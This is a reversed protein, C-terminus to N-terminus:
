INGMSSHTNQYKTLIARVPSAEAGKLKLPLAILNYSGPKVDSLVLGELLAMKHKYVSHHCALKKDEALDVSPTDIGVLIVGKESLMSILECSLANFDSSWKFPNFSNTKFLVRKHQIEVDRIDEPMIRMAKKLNVEVLQCSGLYYDLSVEDITKGEPHYHFPADAHAGLHVTSNIKSLSFDAGENFDFLYSNEYPTDGPFVAIESSILPSIDIYTPQM